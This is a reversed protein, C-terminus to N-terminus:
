NPVESDNINVDPAQQIRALNESAEVFSNAVTALPQTMRENFETLANTVDGITFAIIAVFIIAGIPVAMTAILEWTNKKNYANAKAIDNALLERENTIFPQFIDKNNATFKEMNFDDVAFLITDNDSGRWAEVWKRAKETIDIVESPPLQKKIKGFRTALWSVNNKDKVIKWKYVKIIKRNNIVDRVVLTHKFSQWYWFFWLLVGAVGLFIIWTLLQSFIGLTAGVDVSIGLDEIGAM